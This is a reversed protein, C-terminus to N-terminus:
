LMYKYNGFNSALTRCVGEWLKIAGGGRPPDELDLVHLIASLSGSYGSVALVLCSQSGTSAFCM